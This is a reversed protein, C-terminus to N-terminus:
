EYQTTASVIAERAEGNEYILATVYMRYRGDKLRVVFPDNLSYVDLDRFDEPALRMGPEQEFTEGDDESIWSYIRCCRRAGPQPPGGGVMTFLRIRGDPLIIHKQDVHNQKQKVDYCDGLVNGRDFIFTNGGDRSVARRVSDYPGNNDGLYLMVLEGGRNWFMDYIGISSNDEECPDGSHHGMYRMGPDRKFHKGDRSSTSYFFQGHMDWLYQRYTGDPMAIVHPNHRMDVREDNWPAANDFALGDRSWSM